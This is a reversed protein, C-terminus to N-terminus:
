RYSIFRQEAQQQQQETRRVERQLAPLQNIMDMLEVKLAEIENLLQIREEKVLGDEVLLGTKGAITKELNSIQQHQRDLNARAGNVAQQFSHLELGDRYGTLFDAELDAACSGKYSDGHKGLNFGNRSTCFTESGERHGLRYTNLDPTIGHDACDQRYTSIATEPKGKAGDEFGITRWDATLCQSKNMTACGHLVALAPLVLWLKKTMAM